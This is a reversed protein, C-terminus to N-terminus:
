ECYFEKSYFYIVNISKGTKESIYKESPFESGHAPSYLKYQEPHLM